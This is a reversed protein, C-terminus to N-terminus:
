APAVPNRVRPSARRSRDDNRRGAAADARRLAAGDSRHHPSARLFDFETVIGLM